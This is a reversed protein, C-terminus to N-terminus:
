HQGQWEVVPPRIAIRITANVADIFISGTRSCLKYTKTWHGRLDQPKNAHTTLGHLSFVSHAPYFIENALHCYCLMALRYTYVTVNAFAPHAVHQAKDWKKTNKPRSRGTSRIVITPRLHGDTRVDTRGDVFLKKSKLSIRYTPRPRHSICSLICYSGICPWPWPWSGKLNPFEAM